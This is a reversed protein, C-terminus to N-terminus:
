RGGEDKEGRGRGGRGGGGGGNRGEGKRGGERGMRKIGEEGRGRLEMSHTTHSSKEMRITSASVLRMTLVKLPWELLIVSVTHICVGQM